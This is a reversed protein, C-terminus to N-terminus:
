GCNKLKFKKCSVTTTAKGRKSPVCAIHICYVREFVIKTKDFFGIDNILQDQSKVNNLYLSTYMNCVSQLLRQNSNSIM